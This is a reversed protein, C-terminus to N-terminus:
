QLPHFPVATLVDLSRPANQPQHHLERQLHIAYKYYKNHKM